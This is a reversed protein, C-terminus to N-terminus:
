QKANNKIEKIINKLEKMKDNLGIISYNSKIDLNFDNCVKISIKNKPKSKLVKPNDTILVDVYDWFEKEKNPFYIKKFDFNNKSLFFLTACKSRPSEKNLLVFEVKLKKELDKLKKILGDITEDSRGFVEFSAEEYMFEFVNFNDDQENPVMEVVLETSDSPKFEQSIIESKVTPFSAELDFPNIPEIPEKETLLEYAKKLQSIHDRLINNITIGIVM